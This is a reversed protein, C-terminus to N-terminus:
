KSRRVYVWVHNIIIGYETFDSYEIVTPEGINKKFEELTLNMRMEVSGTQPNQWVDEVDHSESLLKRLKEATKTIKKINDM